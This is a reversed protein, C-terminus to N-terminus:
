RSFGQKFLKRIILSVIKRSKAVDFIILALLYVVAGTVIQFILMMLGKYERLIFVFFCMIMTAIAIKVFDKLPIPLKFVRKGIQWSLILAVLYSIVTTAAAGVAGWRPIFIYNLSINILAGILVPIVQLKTREGLQFSLDFYFAKVGQFLAALAIWPMVYLSKEQFEKGLFIDSINPTLLIFGATSPMAVLLIAIGNKKLQTCAGSYGNKEFHKLVLPFGALNIILMLLIITQQSLDYAVSYLGTESISSFLSLLIRDSSQIIISMAFTATLPVGYNFIKSFINRDVKRLNIGKWERIYIFSLPIAMGLILGILVGKVGMGLHILLMGLMLILVSKVFSVIAYKIPAMSSRLLTLNLDYWAQMWLLCIGLLWYISLSSSENIILYVISGGIYTIVVVIVFSVFITNLFGKKQKHETFSQLFRLLGLRIWQFFIENLIAVIALILAYLGYQEPSLLRTLLIIMLFNVLAPIGRAFAYILTHNLLM